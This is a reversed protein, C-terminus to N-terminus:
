DGRGVEYDALRQNGLAQRSVSLRGSIVVVADPNPLGSCVAINAVPSYERESVRFSVGRSRRVPCSKWPNKTHVAAHVPEQPFGLAM